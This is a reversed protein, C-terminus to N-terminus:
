ERVAGSLRQAPNGGAGATGSDVLDAEDLVVKPHGMGLAVIGGAFMAAVAIYFGDHALDNLTLATADATVALMVAVGIAGGIQRLAANLGSAMAFEHGPVGTVAAGVMGTLAIVIGASYIMAGPLWDRLFHPDPGTSVAVLLLGAAAIIAGSAAVPRPGIREALKGAPGGFAASFLAGPIFALGTELTSYGWVNSLFLVANIITGFFGIAFVLSALNAFAITRDEFLKFDLVPARHGRSRLIFAVLAVLAIGFSALTRGDGWGWEQVKLIGLVLLALAAAQLVAGLADPLPADRERKDRELLSLAWAIIAAGGIINVWFIWRWSLQDVIVGGIAPALATGLGIIAALVGIATKREKGPFEALMLGQGAPVVAAAGLAQAVRGFILWEDSPAVACVLSALTFLGVGGVFVTRRGVRDALRGAVILFAAFGIFYGDLIWALATQSADEFSVSIAPFAVSVVPADLFAMFSGSSILLLVKWRREM